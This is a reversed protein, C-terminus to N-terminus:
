NASRAMAAVSCKGIEADEGESFGNNLVEYQKCNCGYRNRYEQLSLGQVLDCARQSARIKAYKGSSAEAHAIIQFHIMVVAAVRAPIGELQPLEEALVSYHTCTYTLTLMNSLLITPHNNAFTDYIEM